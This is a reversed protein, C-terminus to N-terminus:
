LLGRPLMFAEETKAAKGNEKARCHLQKDNIWPLHSNWFRPIRHGPNLPGSHVICQTKTGRLKQMLGVSSQRHCYVHVTQPTQGSHGCIGINTVLERDKLCESM